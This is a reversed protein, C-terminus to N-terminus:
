DCSTTRHNSAQAPFVACLLTSAAAISESQAAKSDAVAFYRSFFIGLILTEYHQPSPKLLLDFGYQRVEGDKIRTIRKVFRVKPHTNLSQFIVFGM